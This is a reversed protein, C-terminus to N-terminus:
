FNNIEYDLIDINKEIKKNQIEDNLGNSNVITISDSKKEIISKDSIKIESNKSKKPSSMFDTTNEKIEDKISDKYIEVFKAVILINIQNCISSYEKSYFIIASFIYIIIIFIIIYNGINKILGKKSFLLKHCKLFNINRFKKGEILYILERKNYKSEISIGNKISCICTVLNQKFNYGNYICDKPCISYYNNFENQRDYLNIDTGNETSYTYCIDQYYEHNPNYKM